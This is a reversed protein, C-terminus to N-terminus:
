QKIMKRPLACPHKRHVRKVTGENVTVATKYGRKKLLDAVENNWAGYPYAFHQTRIGLKEEIRKEAVEIEFQVEENTLVPLSFHNVTHSAITCLPDRSLEKLQDWTMSLQNCKAEFSSAIDGLLAVLDNKFNEKKIDQVKERIALFTQNKEDENKCSYGTNDSLRVMTNKLILEELLYWWLLATGDPLSTTLYITFPVRYKKLVPYALLYNDAYGDDFTLAVSPKRKKFPSALYQSVSELSIFEYGKNQYNQIVSEFFDPTIELDRNAQLISRKDVVRHLMLIEAIDKYKFTRYQKVPFIQKYQM